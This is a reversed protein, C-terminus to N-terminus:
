ERKLRAGAKKLREKIKKMLVEKQQLSRIRSWEKFNSYLKQYDTVSIKMVKGKIELFQEPNKRAIMWIAILFFALVFPFDLFQPTLVIKEFLIVYPYIFFYFVTALIIWFISHLLDIHGGLNVLTESYDWLRVKLIKKSFIGGLYEVLILATSAVAIALATHFFSFHRFVFVLTLGGFGYIPCIPGKFYGANVWEKETIARYGSDLIWGIFSFAIFEIIYILGM